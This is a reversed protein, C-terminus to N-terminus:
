LCGFRRVDLHCGCSLLLFHWVGVRWLVGPCLESGDSICLTGKKKVHVSMCLFPTVSSDWVQGYFYWAVCCSLWLTSHPSPPPRLFCVGDGHRKATPPWSGHALCNGEVVRMKLM